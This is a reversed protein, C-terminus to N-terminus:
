KKTLWRSLQEREPGGCEAFCPSEATVKERKVIARFAEAIERGSHESAANQRPFLRLLPVLARRDGSKQLVEFLAVPVLVSGDGLLATVEDVAEPSQGEEAICLVMKVRANNIAEALPRNKLPVTNLKALQQLALATTKRPDIQLLLETLDEIVAVDAISRVQQVKELAKAIHPIASQGMERLANCIQLKKLEHDASRFMVDMLAPAAAAGRALIRSLSGNRRSVDQSLWTEIDQKLDPTLTLAAPSSHPEPEPNGM